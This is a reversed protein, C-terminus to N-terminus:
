RAARLIAQWRRWQAAHGAVVVLLLLLALTKLVAQGRTRPLVYWRNEVRDRYVVVEEVTTPRDELSTGFGEWGVFVVEEGCLGGTPFFGLTFVEVICAVIRAPVLALEVFVASAPVGSTGFPATPPGTPAGGSPGPGDGPQNTM